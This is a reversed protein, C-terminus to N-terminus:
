KEPRQEATAVSEGGAECLMVSQSHEGDVSQTPLVLAELLTFGARELVPSWRPVDLLCGDRLRRDPDEFLWYGHLLAGSFFLCDKVATFENLVLLGGPKLLKRTQELTFEIDRTDHLVNAAVVIDFSHLDFGQRPLDKEINLVRYDLWPYTEAFRRRAYRLFSQSIDTFCFEVGESLPALAGLIAATTGGTGAGVEVIRVKAAGSGARLRVAAGRVAEAVLRNFYDSVVDGRFVEAFVDMSGDQFLVDAADIQGTLIEDFRDLCCAMFALLGACAPYRKVFRKKFAAVRAEVDDLAGERVRETAAIVPGDVSVLGREELRRILAAFYRGYKPAVGLRRELEGLEYAEGPERLVGMKQLTALVWQYAFGGLESEARRPDDKKAFPYVASRAAVDRAVSRAVTMERGGANELSSMRSKREGSRHGPSTEFRTLGEKRWMRM